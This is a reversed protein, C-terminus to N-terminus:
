QCPLGEGTVYGPLVSADNDDTDLIFWLEPAVIRIDSPGPVYGDGDKDRYPDNEWISATDISPITGIIKAENIKQIFENAIIAYTTNSPHFCDVSTLGGGFTRSIVHEGVKLEGTSAKHLLSGTDVLTVNKYEDAFQKIYNNITDVRDNFLKTESENISLGDSSAVVGQIVANLTANNTNLARFISTTVSCPFGIMAGLTLAQGKELVTVDPIEHTFTALSEIDQETFLYSADAVHPITGIFINAHPINRLRTIVTSLNTKISELDHGDTKYELYATIDATTIKTGNEALLAGLVDNNGIFLTIIKRKNPHLSAVYEAAELQSVEYGLISPIPKVIETHLKQYNYIPDPNNSKSELLAKIDQGDVGLNYPLFSPDKRTRIRTTFDISLLPNEWTMEINPIKKIQDALLQAFGNIQTFESVNSKGSQTGNTISDGLNMLVIASNDVDDNNDSCSFLILIILVLSILLKNKKM